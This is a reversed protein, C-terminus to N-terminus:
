FLLQQREDFVGPVPVNSWSNKTNTVVRATGSSYRTEKLAESIPNHRVIVQPESIDKCLCCQIDIVLWAKRAQEL